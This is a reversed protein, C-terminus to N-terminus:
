ARSPFALELRPKDSGMERKVRQLLRLNHMLRDWDGGVRIREYTERRAADVSVTLAHMGHQVATRAVAETLLQGNTVAYVRPIRYRSAIEVFRDFQPHLLPETGYTFSLANTHWFVEDALQEFRELPFRRLPQEVMTRHSMMCMVCRLNCKNLLDMELNFPRVDAVERLRGAAALARLPEVGLAGQAARAVARALEAATPPEQALREHTDRVHVHLADVLDAPLTPADVDAM